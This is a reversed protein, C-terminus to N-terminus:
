SVVHHNKACLCPHLCQPNGCKRTRSVRSERSHLYILISLKELRLKAGEKSIVVDAEPYNKNVIDRAREEQRKEFDSPAFVGNIVISKVGKSKIIRCHEVIQAEDIDGILSGDVEIGGKLYAVYVCILKRLDEPWDIGPPIDKSFPGSAFFLLPLSVTETWKLFLM